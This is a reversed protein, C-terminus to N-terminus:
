PVLLIGQDCLKADNTTTTTTTTTTATTTARYGAGPELLIGQDCLKTDDTTTITRTTTTALYEM